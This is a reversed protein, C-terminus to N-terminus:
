VSMAGEMFRELLKRILADILALLREREDEGLKSDTQVQQGESELNGISCRRKHITRLHARFPSDKSNDIKLEPM